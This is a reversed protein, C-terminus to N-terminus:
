RRCETLKNIVIQEKLNPSICGSNRASLLRESESDRNNLRNIQCKYLSSM